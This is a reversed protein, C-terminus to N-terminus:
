VGECVMFVVNLTYDETRISLGKDTATPILYDLQPFLFSKAHYLLRSKPFLLKRVSLFLYGRHRLICLDRGWACIPVIVGFIRTFVIGYRFNVPVFFRGNSFQSITYGIGVESQGVFGETVRSYGANFNNLVEREQLTFQILM